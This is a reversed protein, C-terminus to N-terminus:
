HSLRGPNYATSLDFALEPTIGKWIGINQTALEVVESPHYITAKLIREQV